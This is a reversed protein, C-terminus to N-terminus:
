ISWKISPKSISFNINSVIHKIPIQLGMGILSTQNPNRIHNLLFSLPGIFFHIFIYTPHTPQQFFM